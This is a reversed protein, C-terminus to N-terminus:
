HKLIFSYIRRLFKSRFAYVFNVHFINFFVNFNTTLFIEDLMKAYNFDFIKMLGRKNVHVLTEMKPFITAIICKYKSPPIQPSWLLPASTYISSWGVRGWLLGRVLGCCHNRRSSSQKGNQGRESSTINEVNKGIRRTAILGSNSALSVTLLESRQSSSSNINNRSKEGSSLSTPDSAPVTIRVTTSAELQALSSDSDSSRALVLQQGNALTGGSRGRARRV